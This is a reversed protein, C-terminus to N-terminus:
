KTPFLDGDPWAKVAGAARWLSVDIDRAFGDRDRPRMNFTAVWAYGVGTRVSLTKSGSLSGAHWWNQRADKLPRVYMGLGYFAPKPELGPPPALMLRVTEPRLLAAARQGDIAMMFRLYDVPSGIWGGFSDMTEMAYRGYPAVVLRAAGIGPTSEVLAAGPYEYYASEDEAGAFSSGIDMGRAGVPGLVHQKVYDVYAQGSVIEVVRGLICYGLNSYAYRTGPDFDLKRELNDRLVTQCSPPLPAKQRAASQASYPPFVPDGAEGRDFGATHQLLHRITIRHVRPDTVAAPRPGMEGLRPLLLDDLGLRGQEVLQLVAVATVPKALSGLRFRTAPDVPRQTEREALGYGRTLVIRGHLGVALGGGPVKWRDLLANMEVDFSDLGPLAPGTIQASATQTALGLSLACWALACLSSVRRFTMGAITQRWEGM